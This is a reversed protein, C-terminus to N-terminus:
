DSLFYIAFTGPGCHASIACGIEGSLFNKCGYKEEMLAKVEDICEKCDSHNIGILQDKPNECLEGVIDVMRSIAKQLGRAKEIPILRGEDDVHLIPKIGLLGGVIKASRSVRGGRYLYELDGVTFIHEMNDCYFQANLVLDEYPMGNDLNILTKYISMGVGLSACKSDIVTLRFGPYKTKIDNALMNVLNYSGSLASSFSIYIVDDKNKAHKTLLDEVKASSVMSTKAVAGKKMEDTVEVSKITEADYYIKGNLSVTLAIVELNPHKKIENPIDSASDTIIYVAM